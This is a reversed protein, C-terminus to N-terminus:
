TEQSLSYPAAMSQAVFATGWILAALVAYSPQRLSNHKM